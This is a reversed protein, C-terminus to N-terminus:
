AESAKALYLVIDITTLLSAKGFSIALFNPILFYFTLRTILHLM